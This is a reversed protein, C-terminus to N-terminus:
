TRFTRGQLCYAAPCAHPPLLLLLLLLPTLPTLFLPPPPRRHRLFLGAAWIEGRFIIFEYTENSPPV